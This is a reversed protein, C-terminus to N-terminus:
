ERLRETVWFTNILLWTTVYEVFSVHFISFHNWTCLSENKLLHVCKQITNKDSDWRSIAGLRAPCLFYCKIKFMNKQWRKINFM